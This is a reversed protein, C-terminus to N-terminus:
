RSQSGAALTMAVSSNLLAHCYREIYIKSPVGADVFLLEDMPGVREMTRYATKITPHDLCATPPHLAAGILLIVLLHKLWHFRTKPSLSTV